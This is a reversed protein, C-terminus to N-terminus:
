VTFQEPRYSYASGRGMREGCRVAGQRSLHRHECDCGPIRTYGSYAAARYRIKPLPSPRYSPHDQM